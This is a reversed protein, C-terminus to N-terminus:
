NPYRIVPQRPFLIYDKGGTKLLMQSVMPQLLCVNLKPYNIYVKASVTRSISKNIIITLVDSEIKVFNSLISPFM